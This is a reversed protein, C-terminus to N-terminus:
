VLARADSHRTSVAQGSTIAIAPHGARNGVKDFWRQVATDGYHQSLKNSAEDFYPRLERVTSEPLLDILFTQLLRLSLAQSADMGPITVRKNDSAWYWGYPKNRTDCKLSFSKALARLDRQV